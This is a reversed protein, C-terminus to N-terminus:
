RQLMKAYIANLAFGFMASDFACSIGVTRLRVEFKESSYNVGFEFSVLCFLPMLQLKNHDVNHWGSDIM